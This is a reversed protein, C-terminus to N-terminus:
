RQAESENLRKTPETITAIMFQIGKKGPTLLLMQAAKIKGNEERALQATLLENPSDPIVAPTITTALPAATVTSTMDPVSPSIPVVAVHSAVRNASGGVYRQLRVNRVTSVGLISQLQGVVESEAVSQGFERRDFAFAERLKQEAEQEIAAVRGQQEAFILLTATITYYIPEYSAIEIAPWPAARHLDISEILKDVIAAGRPLEKGASDAVTFYLLRNAGEYFSQMRVRGIGAYLRVFDEYDALAVIRGMIRVSLPARERIAPLSDPGVGGTAPLPNIARRVASPFTQPQEITFAPVNGDPGIGIRYTATVQETGTPLRAGQKGDGFIVHSNDEADQRVIYARQDRTLGYLYPVKEWEVDNVEVKIESEAGLDNAASVYTLPREPLMFRENAQMGSGSGLTENKVTRGHTVHVINGFIRVTARDYAYLLPSELIVTTETDTLQLANVSIVESVERDEETPLAWRIQRSTAEVTGIFGDRMQLQWQYPTQGVQPAKLVRLIQGVSVARQDIGNEAVLPRTLEEAILAYMPKGTIILRQKRQFDPYYGILTIRDGRVPRNDFLAVNESQLLVTCRTRSFRPLEGPEHVIIRTFEGNTVFDRSIVRQVDAIQYRANTPAQGPQRLIIWSDRAVTPYSAALDIEGVLIKETGDGPIEKIQGTFWRDEVASAGVAGAVFQGFPTPVITHIAKLTSGTNYSYWSDGNTSSRFLRGDATAALVDGAAVIALAQIAPPKGEKDLLGNNVPEMPVDPFMRRVLAQTVKKWIAANPDDELSRFIGDKTGAFVQGNDRIALANVEGTLRVTVRSSMQRDAYIWALLLALVGLTIGSIKVLMTATQHLLPQILYLNVFAFVPLILQTYLPQLLAQVWGPLAAWLATAFRELGQWGALVTSSLLESVQAWIGALASSLNEEPPVPAIAGTFGIQAVGTVQKPGLFTSANVAARTATLADQIQLTVSILTPETIVFGSDITATFIADASLEASATMKSSDRIEGVGGLRGIAVITTTVDGPEAILAATTTLTFTRSIIEATNTLAGNTTTADAEADFKISPNVTIIGEGAMIVTATVGVTALHASRVQWEGTGSLQVPIIQGAGRNTFYQVLLVLAVIVAAVLWRRTREKVTFKGTDTGVVVKNGAAKPAVALATIATFKEPATSFGSRVFEWLDQGWWKATGTAQATALVVKNIWPVATVLTKVNTKILLARAIALMAERQEVPTLRKETPPRKLASKPVLTWTKGEDTSSYLDKATAAYLLLNGKNDTACELEKIPTKPLLDPPKVKFGTENEKLVEITPAVTDGSIPTWNDANDYSRYIGGTSSAAYLTNDPALALATVNRRILDIGVAQWSDGNDYSRYLDQKTAAFLAGQQNRVLANIDLNPLSFTRPVWNAARESTLNHTPAPPTAAPKQQGTVAVLGGQGRANTKGISLQTGTTPAVPTSTNDTGSNTTIPLSNTTPTPAPPLEADFYVAGQAYGFLTTESRFVFLAPVRIEAGVARDAQWRIFTYPQQPDAIVETLTGLLWPAPPTPLTPTSSPPVPNDVTAAVTNQQVPALEVFLIVNGVALDNRYGAVRLYTSDTLLPESTESTTAALTVVPQLLNWETRVETDVNTEFIEPLKGEGPTSQIASGKPVTIRQPQDQDDAAITLTLYAEAAVGPRWQYGVARALALVSRRERVTRIYGENTIREQYFALVDTVIAWAHILAISWDDDADPNLRTLADQTALSALMRERTAKYQGGRYTLAPLAPANVRTLAALSDPENRTQNMAKSNM